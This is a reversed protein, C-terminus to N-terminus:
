RLILGLLHSFVFDWFGIFAALVASFAIVVVTTTLLEKRKVWTVKRLEAAVDVVYNRIRRIVNM